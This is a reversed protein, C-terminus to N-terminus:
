PINIFEGVRLPKVQDAYEPNQEMYMKIAHLPYVLPEDSQSILGFHMPIVTKAKLDEAVRFFEEINLHQYHMFWRPEYAGAGVLAYDINYRNGFEKFGCFYGTDGSFYFTKSAEIMFGGWLTVSSKQGIRRSWHQAPLLTYRVTGINVSQWWDLEHVEGTGKKLLFNKLGLPVIFVADKKIFKKITATDLHDYHNHSILVVPREPLLSYDFPIKVDKSIILAKDSFFPDLAITAGDIKVIFSAHGVFSISTNNPDSLYNYSNAVPGYQGAPFEEFKMKKRFFFGRRGKPRDVSRPMWPNFFVGNEDQHPGYLLGADVANVRELWLAEDFSPTQQSRCSIFVSLFLIALVIKVM